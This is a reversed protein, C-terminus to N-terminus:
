RNIRDAERSVPALLLLHRAFFPIFLFGALAYLSYVLNYQAWLSALVPAIMGTIGGGVVETPCGYNVILQFAV